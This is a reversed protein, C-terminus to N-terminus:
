NKKRYGDKRPLWQEISIEMYIICSVNANFEHIEDLMIRVIHELYTEVKHPLCLPLSVGIVVLSLKVTVCPMAQVNSGAIM